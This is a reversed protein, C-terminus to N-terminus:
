NANPTIDSYSVFKPIIHIISNFNVQIAIMLDNYIWIRVIM